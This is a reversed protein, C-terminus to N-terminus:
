NILLGLSCQPSTPILPHKILKSHTSEWFKNCMGCACVFVCLSPCLGWGDRWWSLGCHHFDMDNLWWVCFVSNTKFSEVDNLLEILVLVRFLATQAHTINDPYHVGPFHHIYLSRHLKKKKKKWETQRVRREETGCVTSLSVAGKHGWMGFCPFVLPSFFFSASCILPIEEFPDALRLVDMCSM